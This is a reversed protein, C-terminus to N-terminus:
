ETVVLPKGGVIVITHEFHSSVSGDKTKVTWGDDGMVVNYRGLTLMPEIALAMHEEIIPGSGSKGFNPIHPEMHAEKGIGHGVLDRVVGFDNTEAYKQVEHGIDGIHGGTKAERIGKELCEKTVRMIKENESSVRGVGVTIAMDTCIGKYKAGLDLSVIDGDELIRESPLGHVIEDNVSVCLSFPFSSAGEVKYDKFSPIAGRSTIASEAIQDLEKTSIGIRIADRVEYLSDRLIKGCVKIAEIEEINLVNRM